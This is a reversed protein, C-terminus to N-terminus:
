FHCVPEYHELDFIIFEEGPPVIQKTVIGQYVDKDNFDYKKQLIDQFPKIPGDWDQGPNSFGFTLTLKYPPPPLPQKRVSLAVFRAFARYKATKFRQGTYAENVSMPKVDIKTRMSSVPQM